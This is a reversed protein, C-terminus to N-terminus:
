KNKSQYYDLLMPLYLLFLGIREMDQPSITASSSKRTSNPDRRQQQATWCLLSAFTKIHDTLSQCLVYRSRDTSSSTDNNNNTGEHHSSLPIGRLLCADSFEVDTFQNIYECLTSSTTTVTSSKTQNQLQLLVLVEECLLLQNEQVIRQLKSRIHHRLIWTPTMYVTSYYRVNNRAVASSSSLTPYIGTALSLQILATRSYSDLVSLSFRPSKSDNHSPNESTPVMLIDYWDLITKITQSRDNDDTTKNPINSLSPHQQLVYTMVSHFYSQQEKHQLTNYHLIETNTYFHSSLLQRPLLVALIMPVYGVIPLLCLFVTPAVTQLSQLFKYKEQQQRWPVLILQQETPTHRTRSKDQQRQLLIVAASMLRQRSQQFTDYIIDDKSENLVSHTDDVYSTSVPHQQNEQQQQQQLLSLLSQYRRAWAHTANTHHLYSHTLPHQQLTRVASQAASQISNYLVSDRYLKAISQNFTMIREWYSMIPSTPDTRPIKLNNSTCQKADTAVNREQRGHEMPTSSTTGQM